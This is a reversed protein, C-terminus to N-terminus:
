VILKLQKYIKQKEEQNEFSKIVVDGCKYGNCKAFYREGSAAVVYPVHHHNHNSDKSKSM